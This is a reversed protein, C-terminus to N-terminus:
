AQEGFFILTFLLFFFNLNVTNLLQTMLAFQMLESQDMKSLNSFKGIELNKHKQTKTKQDQFSGEGYPDLKKTL